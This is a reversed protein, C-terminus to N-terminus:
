CMGIYRRCFLVTDAFM